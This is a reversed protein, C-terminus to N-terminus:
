PALAINEAHICGRVGAGTTDCLYEFTATLCQIQEGMSRHEFVQFRGNAICGSGDNILYIYVGFLDMVNTAYVTGPVLTTGNPGFEISFQGDPGSVFLEILLDGNLEGVAGSWDGEDITRDGGYIPAGTDGTVTVVRPGTICDLPAIQADSLNPFTTACLESTYAGTGGTSDDSDDGGDGGCALQLLAALAWCTRCGLFRPVGM